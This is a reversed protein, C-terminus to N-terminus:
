WISRRGGPVVRVCSIAYAGRPDPAVGYLISYGGAASRACYRTASCGRM